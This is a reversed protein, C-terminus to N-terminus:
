CEYGIVFQAAREIGTLYSLWLSACLGPVARRVQPSILFLVGM